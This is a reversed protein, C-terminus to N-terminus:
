KLSKQELTSTLSDMFDNQYCMCSLNLSGKTSLNVATESRIWLVLHEVYHQNQWQCFLKFTILVLAATIKISIKLVEALSPIRLFDAVLTKASETIADLSGKYTNTSM